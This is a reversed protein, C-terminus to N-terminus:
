LNDGRRLAIIDVTFCLRGTLKRLNMNKESTQDAAIGITSGGVHM